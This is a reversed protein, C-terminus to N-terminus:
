MDGFVITGLSHARCVLMRASLWAFVFSTALVLTPADTSMAVNMAWTPGVRTERTREPTVNYPM